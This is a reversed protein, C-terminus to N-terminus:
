KRRKKKKNRKTDGRRSRVLLGGGVGLATLAAAVLGPRSRLRSYERNVEPWVQEEILAAAAEPTAELENAPIAAAFAVRVRTPRPIPGWFLKETGMIAAPIVPAGAEIALRAAGRRPSGLSAPDRVRTGEPFLALLGGQRLIERATELAVADSEGRKVPFAGLRILWKGKWGTFLEQKGMFRLHRRTAPAIFFSDWFSKHNPAIIAAGERPINEAGEVSLRFWVRMFPVIIARVIAYLVRSVGKERAREHAEEHTV